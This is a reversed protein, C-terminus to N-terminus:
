ESRLITTPAIRAARFAPLSTAVLSALGLTAAAAIFAAPDTATVGFLLNAMLRTGAAAGALGIFVGAGALMMGQGVVMGMIERRSAGLALRVGVERMRQTVTYSMVGYVGV